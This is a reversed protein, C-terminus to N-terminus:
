VALTQSANSGRVYIPDIFGFYWATVAVVANLPINWAFLPMLGFVQDLLPIIGAITMMAAIAFLGKCYLRATPYFVSALIAPVGILIYLVDHTLNTPLFDLLYGYDANVLLLRMYEPRAPPAYVFRPFLGLIGLTLYFLGAGFTYLQTCM